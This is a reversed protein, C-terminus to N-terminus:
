STPPTELWIQDIQFVIAGGGAAYGWFRVGLNAYSGIAAADADAIALSYDALANTLAGTELYGPGTDTINVAGEYLAMRITGAGSVTRARVHLSHLTRSTPASGAALSVEAVSTQSTAGFATGDLTLDLVGGTSAFAQIIEGAGLVLYVNREVVEGAPVPYADWMRSAAADTGVSLTFAVPAGSPNSVHINEIRAGAAPATYVTAAAGTLQQPGAFRGLSM